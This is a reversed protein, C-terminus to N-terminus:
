KINSKFWKYFTGADRLSQYGVYMGILIIAVSQLPTNEHEDFMFCGIIGPISWLIITLIIGIAKM